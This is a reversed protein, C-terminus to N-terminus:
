SWDVSTASWAVDDVSWCCSAASRACASVAHPIELGGVEVVVVVVVVADEGVAGEPFLAQAVARWVTEM